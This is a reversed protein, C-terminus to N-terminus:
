RRSRNRNGSGPFSLDGSNDSAVLNDSNGGVAFVGPVMLADTGQITPASAGPRISIAATGTSGSKNASGVAFPTTTLVGGSVSITFLTSDPRTGQFNAAWNNLDFNGGPTVRDVQIPSYTLPMGAQDVFSDQWAPTEFFEVQPPSKAKANGIVTAIGASEGLSSNTETPILLATQENIGIGMPQHNPSFADPSAPNALDALFAVMRGTRDRTIFHTDVITNNLLPLSSASSVFNEALTVDSNFPNALAAASSVSSNLSSYIFQGIVDTGASTGGIPAGRAIDDAIATQVPTGQWFNIYDKQSGGTIFIADASEIIQQVAPDLAGARSPIELTAVSNVGGMNKIFSNYGPTSTATLVLFDGKGGMHGIMWQFAAAVDTGGGELAVGGLGTMPGANQKNGQRSYAYDVTSAAQPAAARPVAVSGDLAAAAGTLCLRLELAELAPGFDRIRRRRPSRLGLRSRLDDHLRAFSCVLRRVILHM